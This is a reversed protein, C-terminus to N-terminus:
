RWGTKYYGTARARSLDWGRRRRRQLWPFGIQVCATLMVVDLGKCWEYEFQVFESVASFAGAVSLGAVVSSMFDKREGRLRDVAAEVTFYAGTWTALRLGTRCGEQLGYYMMHYNKTKHYLYWGKTSTPLRHTNEARFRLSSMQAGHAGGLIVGTFLGAGTGLFIRPIPSLSLREQSTPASLSFRSIYNLQQLPADLVSPSSPPSTASPSLPNSM